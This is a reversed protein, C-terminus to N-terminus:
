LRTHESKACHSEAVDLLGHTTHNTKYRQTKYSVALLSAFLEVTDGIVDRRLAPNGFPKV